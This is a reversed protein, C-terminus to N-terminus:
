SGSCTGGPRPPAARLTGITCLDTPPLAAVALANAACENMARPARRLVAEIGSLSVFWRSGTLNVLNGHVAGAIALASPLPQNELGVKRLYAVLADTFTPHDATSYREIRRPAARDPGGSLGFRVSVRGIDAILGVEGDM